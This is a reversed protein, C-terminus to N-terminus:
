GQRLLAAEEATAILLGSSGRKAEMKRRLSAATEHEQAVRERKDNRIREWRARRAHAVGAFYVDTSRMADSLLPHRSLFAAFVDPDPILNRHRAHCLHNILTTWLPDRHGSRHQEILGIEEYSPMAHKVYDIYVALTDRTYAEMGLLRAAQLVMVDHAFTDQFRVPLTEFERSTEEMWTVLLYRVARADASGAGFHCELSSAPAASFHQHLVPSAAMAVRKYIGHVEISGIFITIRAGRFYSQREPRSVLYMNELAQQIMAPPPPEPIVPAAEDDPATKVVTGTPMLAGGGDPSRHHSVTETSGSSSADIDHEQRHVQTLISSPSQRSSTGVVVVAHKAQDQQACSSSLLESMHQSSASWSSCTVAAWSKTGSSAAIAMDLLAPTSTRSREDGLGGDHASDSKNDEEDYRGFPVRTAGKNAALSVIDPHATTGGSKTANSDKGVVDKSSGGGHAQHAKSKQTKKTGRTLVGGGSSEKPAAAAESRSKDVKFAGHGNSEGVSANPKHEAAGTSQGLPKAPSEVAISLRTADDKAHARQVWEGRGRPLTKKSPRQDDAKAEMRKAPSSPKNGPLTQAM